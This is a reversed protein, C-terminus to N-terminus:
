PQTQNLAQHPVTALAHICKGQYSDIRGDTLIIVTRPSGIPLKEKMMSNATDIASALNTGGNM